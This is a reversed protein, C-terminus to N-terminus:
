IVIYKYEDTLEKFQRIEEQIETDTMEENIFVNFEFPCDPIIYTRITAYLEYGIPRIIEGTGVPSSYSWKGKSQFYSTDLSKLMNINYNIPSDSKIIM